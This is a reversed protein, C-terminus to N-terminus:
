LKVKISAGTKCISAQNTESTEGDIQYTISSRAQINISKGRYTHVEKFKLHQGTFVTGFLALVKWKSIANVVVVSLMEKENEALPNIKMGGGFYPHNNVVLLFCSKFDYVKSDIEMKVQIPKYFLLQYVLMFIYVVSGLHLKNFLRKLMSENVSKAVMADFGFGVCNIFSKEHAQDFTAHGLWYDIKKRNTDIYTKMEDLSVNLEIARAFDNGSGSPIYAIPIDKDPSGNIVEHMTGDGGIVVITEIRSHYESHMWTNIIQKAHGPYTTMEFVANMKDYLNNKQFYQHLKKAKGNGAIPNIIFLYM